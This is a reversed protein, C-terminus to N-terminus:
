YPRRFVGGFLMAARVKDYVFYIFPHNCNFQAPEAPRSSRFSFLVTAAAAKTGEENVEIRAKHLAGGLQAEGEELLESLNGASQFLDGVGMQELVGTFLVTHTKGNYILYIFPRDCRFYFVDEDDSMRWTLFATAAAAHAGNENIEIKAKHIGEGVSVKENTLTHFNANEKFLNGVGLSELVPVLEITTELSFKPLSVQVTRFILSDREVLKRFNVLNLNKLTADISDETNSFPPLLIYMSINDGQYPLELIHAGLTESIDHRFSGEVHMMDVMIQKTPSVYFIDPRTLNPNFKNEWVGKFYAANVLVLSTSADISGTPLLDTIMHHTTNEVWQNISNRCGEPDSKFPYSELEHPFDANVCGRVKVTDSVYIKNASTFEYAANQHVTLLRDLKYAAYIDSRQQNDGLRLVKRLYAETEGGAMFYAILLAHYTSYPSFFLNQKPMLKNIANLLALSFDQEGGYLNNYSNVNPQHGEFPPFCSEQQAACCAVSIVAVLAVLLPNM